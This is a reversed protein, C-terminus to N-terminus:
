TKISSIDVYREVKSRCVPCISEQTKKIEIACIKCIYFHNCPQVVVSKKREMCIICDEEETDEFIKTEELEEKSNMKRSTPRTIQRQSLGINGTSPPFDMLNARARSLRIQSSCRRQRGVSELLRDRDQKLENTLVQFIGGTTM